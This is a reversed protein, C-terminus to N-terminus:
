NIAGKKEFSKIVTVMVAVVVVEEEVVVMVTVLQIVQTVPDKLTHTLATINTPKMISLVFQEM